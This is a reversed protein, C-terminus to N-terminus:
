EGVTSGGRPATTARWTPKVTLDRFVPRGADNCLVKGEVNQALVAYKRLRSYVLPEPPPGQILCEGKIQRCAGMWANRDESKKMARAAAMARRCITNHLFGRHMDDLKRLVGPSEIPFRIHKTQVLPM